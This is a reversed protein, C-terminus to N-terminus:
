DKLFEIIKENVEPAKEQPSEHSAGEIVVFKSNPIGEHLKFNVAKPMQRDKDACIVLTEAKILHLKETVNHNGLANAQNTIDQPTAPNIISDKILDEASFLGHFKKKLDEKMLKIFPRSYGMKSTEFFAQEPDKLRSEYRAIQANKYVELGSKDAPWADITNILILKNVSSPFNIAFHQAMMGGTSWGIIHAKEIKLFDLLGKVDEAFIEMTYPENPRDSKGAGRNDLRIVKFHESLPGFQGIWQEKKVGFGHILVVPDGDGQVEYCIKIGNVDAFLETM